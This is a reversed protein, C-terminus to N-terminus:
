AAAEACGREFADEGGNGDEERESGGSCDFDIGLGDRENFELGGPVAYILAASDDECRSRFPSDAIRLSDAAASSDFSRRNDKAM